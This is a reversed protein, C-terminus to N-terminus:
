QDHELTNPVIDYMLEPHATHYEPDDHDTQSDEYTHLGKMDYQPAALLLRKVCRDVPPKRQWIVQGYQECTRPGDDSIHKQMGSYPM